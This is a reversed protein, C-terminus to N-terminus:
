VQEGFAASIARRTGPGFSGDLGGAYFGNRALVAQLARRTEAGFLEPRQLLIDHVQRSGSRLARYLYEAADQPGKGPVIGEDIMSAFNFMAQPHREDAAREFYALGRAPDRPLGMEGQFHFFGMDNLADPFGQDASAQFLELARRRDQPVGLGIEYM